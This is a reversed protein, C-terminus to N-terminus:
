RAPHASYHAVTNQPIILEPNKYLKTIRAMRKNM